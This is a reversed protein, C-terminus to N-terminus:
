GLFGTLTTEQNTVLSTYYVVDPDVDAELKSLVVKIKEFNAQNVATIYVNLAKCVNLRVNPVPDSSLCILLNLCDLRISDNVVPCIKTLMSIAAVRFLYNTSESLEVM